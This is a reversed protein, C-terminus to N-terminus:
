TLKTFRFEFETIMSDNEFSTAVDCERRNVDEIDTTHKGLKITSVLSDYNSPLQKADTTFYVRVTTTETNLVVSGDMTLYTPEEATQDRDVYIRKFNKLYLPTGNEDWPLENTVSFTGLTLGKIYDYIAQRM